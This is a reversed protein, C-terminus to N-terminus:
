DKKSNYNVSVFGAITGVFILVGICAGYSPAVLGLIPFFLPASTWLVLAGLMLTIGYVTAQAVLKVFLESIQM